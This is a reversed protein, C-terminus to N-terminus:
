QLWFLMTPINGASNALNATSASGGNQKFQLTLAHSAGDGTIMWNISFANHSPTGGTDEILTQPGTIATGGDALAFFEASAGGSAMDGTGSIWVILNHGVPITVTYALNTGDVNVYSTSATSYDGGNTGKKLVFASTGPCSVTTAGGNADTCLEVGTGSVTGSSLLNADTGQIPKSSTVTTATAAIPVQGATMGSM